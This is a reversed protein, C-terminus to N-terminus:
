LSPATFPNINIILITPHAMTGKGALFLELWDHFTGRYDYYKSLKIHHNYLSVAMDKPNRLVFLLRLRRALADSPLADYHVHTNLVRPSPYEDIEAASNFELMHMSKKFPITEAAGKLLMM